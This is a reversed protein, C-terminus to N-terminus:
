RTLKGDFSLSTTFRDVKRTLGPVVSDYAQRTALATLVVKRYLLASFGGSYNSVKDNRLVPTNEANLVPAPFKNNGYEARAQLLVRPHVELNIGGGNRSEVFFVNAFGGETALPTGFYVGRHGFTQLELKRTLFYSAFYSYTSTTYDPFTSGGLPRGERRGGNVSVFFRPRSYHIGALYAVSQNNRKEPTLVFLARTGETGLTVDWDASVRYRLGVRAVEDDRDLQKVDGIVALNVGALGLRARRIEAGGFASLRRTLELEANASADNAVEIVRTETESSLPTSTKSTYGGVQLSVRNFFGYLSARYFGGTTRRSVLKQYWTYEPLADGTAFMKAGIPAVFRAGAAVTATWDATKTEQCGIAERCDSPTGFVNSDYGANSLVLRPLIHIPGLRYRASEVEQKISEQVPITRERPVQDTALQALAVQRTSLILVIRLTVRALRPLGRSDQLSSSRAFMARPQDAFLAGRADSRGAVDGLRNRRRVTLEVLPKTCAARDAIRM